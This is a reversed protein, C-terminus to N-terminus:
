AAIKEILYRKFYKKAKRKEKKQECIYLIAGIRHINRAVIALAVYRKFGDIGHDPCVDLGHIELANIASEVASHKRRAKRFVEAAEISLAEKSLRGKRPLVVLDLKGSLIEQNEKSHFGKDFSCGTFNTFQKQTHEVMSVAIQEDTQKEMVQHHLIFQHQDEMICVKLGLEVPVGAKGKSIWETHPQFVSFVKEHHLIDEGGIVRREIQELQREAHLIFVAIQQVLIIENINQLGVEEIVKLTQKAKNLQKKSLVIYDQHVNVIAEASKLKQEDTKAQSRKKNQVTRLLNKLQQINYDYQRWTNMGHWRSLKHTLRIVKRMADFLLNIDTPYHVDTEVM